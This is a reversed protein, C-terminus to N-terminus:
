LDHLHLRLKIRALVPLTWDMSESVFRTVDTCPPTIRALLVKM